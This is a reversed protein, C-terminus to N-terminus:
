CWKTIVFIAIQVVVTAILTWRAWILQRKSSKAQEYLYVDEETKYGLNKMVALTQSTYIQQHWYRCILESTAASPLRVTLRDPEREGSFTVSNAVMDYLRILHLSELYEVLTIVEIINNVAPLLDQMGADNATLGVENRDPNAIIGLDSTNVLNSILTGFSQIHMLEPNSSALIDIARKELNSFSRM